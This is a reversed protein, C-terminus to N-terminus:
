YESQIEITLTKHTPNFYPSSFKLSFAKETTNIGTLFPLVIWRELALEEPYPLYHLM